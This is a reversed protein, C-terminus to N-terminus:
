VLLRSPSLDGLSYKGAKPFSCVWVDDDRVEFNEISDAILRYTDPVFLSKYNLYKMDVDPSICENLIKEVESDM